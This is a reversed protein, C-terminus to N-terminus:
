HTEANAAIIQNSVTTLAEILEETPSLIMTTEKKMMQFAAAFDVADGSVVDITQRISVDAMTKVNAINVQKNIM